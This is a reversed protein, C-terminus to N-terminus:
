DQWGEGLDIYEHSFDDAIRREESNYGGTQEVEDGALNQWHEVLQASPVLLHRKICEFQRNAAKTSNVSM